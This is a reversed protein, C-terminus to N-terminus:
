LGMYKMRDVFEDHLEKKRRLTHLEKISLNDLATMIQNLQHRVMAQLEGSLRYSSKLTEKSDEILQGWRLYKICTQNWERQIHNLMATEDKEPLHRLGSNKIDSKMKKHIYDYQNFKEGPGIYPIETEVKKLLM